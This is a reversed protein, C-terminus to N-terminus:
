TLHKVNVSKVSFGSKALEVTFDASRAPMKRAYVAGSFKLLRKPMKMVKMKVQISGVVNNLHQYLIGPFTCMFIRQGPNSASNDTFGTVVIQDCADLNQITVSIFVNEGIASSNNGLILPIIWNGDPQKKVLRKDVECKLDPIETAL